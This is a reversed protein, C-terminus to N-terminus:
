AGTQNIHLGQFDAPSGVPTGEVIMLDAWGRVRWTTGDTSSAAGVTSNVIHLSGDPAETVRMRVQGEGEAFPELPAPDGKSLAECTMQVLEPAGLSSDYLYIPQTSVDVKFDVSGDRRTFVRARHTPENDNCFDVATAGAFLLVQKDFDGYFLGEEILRVDFGAGDAPAAAIVGVLMTITATIVTVTRRMTTGLRSSRTTPRPSHTGARHGRSAVDQHVDAPQDTDLATNM